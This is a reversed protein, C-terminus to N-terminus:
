AVGSAMNYRVDFFSPSRTAQVREGDDIVL